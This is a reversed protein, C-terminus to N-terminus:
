FNMVPELALAVEPHEANFVRARIELGRQAKRLAEDYDGRGLLEEVELSLKRAENIEAERSASPAPIEQGVARKKTGLQLTFIVTLSFALKLWRRNLINTM